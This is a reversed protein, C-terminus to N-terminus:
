LHTITLVGWQEQLYEAVLRRHCQEATAESCLLVTPGDFLARDLREEVRRQAMLELFQREYDAWSERQKKYDDLLEPTPSLLPEHVYEAGCLEGLFFALDDRKAFGALQSVNNLRVDLLRKIGAGRLRGFFHAASSQTFGITFVEM